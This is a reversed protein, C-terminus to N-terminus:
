ARPIAQSLIENGPATILLDDEIRVGIGEEPVYIGPEVTVVMGPQLPKYYDGVDHVDLGMFHPYHPYYKRFAKKNRKLQARTLLGLQVLSDAVSACVVEESEIISVGPKLFKFAAQQAKQVAQHIEKHRKDIKGVPFTRSIDAAYNHSEAGVDFLVLDGNKLIGDNGEYHITCANKGAAVISPFALDQHNKAFTYELAAALEYEYRGPQLLKAAAAFGKATVDIAQRICEIEEPQKIVRLETLRSRVDRIKKAPFKSKLWDVTQQRAPNVEFSLWKQKMPFLSYISSAGRLLANVSRTAQRKEVIHAIGSIESLHSHESQGEWLQRRENGNPVILMEQDVSLVLVSDPQNLGSLYFFNSDQRFPFAVDCNRQLQLQAAIICVAGRPLRERLRQRNNAFFNARLPSTRM